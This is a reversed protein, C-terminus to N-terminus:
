FCKPKTHFLIQSDSWVHTILYACIYALLLKQVVKGRPSRVCVTEMVNKGKDRDRLVINPNDVLQFESPENADVDDGGGHSNVYDDTDSDSVTLMIDSYDMFPVKVKRKKNSGTVTSPTTFQTKMPDNLLGDCIQSELLKSTSVAGKRGIIGHMEHTLWKLTTVQTLVSTSVKDVDNIRSTLTQSSILILPNFM